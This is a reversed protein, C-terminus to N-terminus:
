QRFCFCVRKGGRIENCITDGDDDDNDDSDDENMVWM